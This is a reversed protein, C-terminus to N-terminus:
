AISKDPYVSHVKKELHQYQPIGIGVSSYRGIGNIAAV